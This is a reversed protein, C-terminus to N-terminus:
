IGFDILIPRATKSTRNSVTRVVSPRWELFGNLEGDNKQLM